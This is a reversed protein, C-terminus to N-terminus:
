VNWSRRPTEFWRYKPQNKLRKNLDFNIIEPGEHPSVEVNGACFTLWLNRECRVMFALRKEIYMYVDEFPFM